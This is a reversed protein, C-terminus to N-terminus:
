IETKKQDEVIDGGVPVVAKQRMQTREGQRDTAAIAMILAGWSDSNIGWGKEGAVSLGGHTCFRLRTRSPGAEPKTVSQIQLM